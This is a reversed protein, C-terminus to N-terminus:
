LEEPEESLSAGASLGTAGSRPPAIGLLSLADREVIGRLQERPITPLNTGHCLHNIGYLAEICHLAAADPFGSGFLLKGIVGAEYASILAQYAEWRHHLVRSIEAYVNPHKMLLGLTETVWPFGMHAVVIKLNPLERAIEDLLVPQAYQLKTAPSLRVGTHFLIPMGFEAAEAYVRMALSNSPHFDQAAPAVAVGRMGLELKARKLEAIAEKPNSPDIGAFGILRDPHNRVYSAVHDNPIEASLYRSKFGLVVTTSVPETAALHRAVGAISGPRLPSGTTGNGGDPACRGLQAPSEWIHTYCDVIM